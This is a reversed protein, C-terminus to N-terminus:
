FSALFTPRMYAPSGDLASLLRMPPLRAVLAPAKAGDAVADGAVLDVAQFDDGRRSVDDFAAADEFLARGAVIQFLEDDAAFSRQADDGLHRYLENGQRRVAEVDQGDVSIRALGQM